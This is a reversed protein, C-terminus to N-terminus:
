PENLQIYVFEVTKQSRDKRLSSTEKFTVLATLVTPINQLRLKFVIIEVEFFNVKSIKPSQLNQM